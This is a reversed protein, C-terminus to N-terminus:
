KARLVAWFIPVAMGSTCGLIVVWTQVVAPPQTVWCLKRTVSARERGSWAVPSGLTEQVLGSLAVRHGSAAVHARLQSSSPTSYPLM